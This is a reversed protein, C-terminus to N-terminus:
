DFLIFLLNVDFLVFYKENDIKFTGSKLLGMSFPIIM